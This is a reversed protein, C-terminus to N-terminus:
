YSDKIIMRSSCIKYQERMHSARWQLIKKTKVISRAGHNLSSHAVKTCCSAEIFDEVYGNLYTQWQDQQPKLHQSCRCQELASSIEKNNRIFNGIARMYHMMARATIDVCPQIVPSSVCKCRNQFFFSRSPTIFGPYLNQYSDLTTSKLFLYYQENITKVRWVRAVHKEEGVM